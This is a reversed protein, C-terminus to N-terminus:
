RLAPLEFMFRTGENVHSQVHIVQQHAELIKKTIALGLGAGNRNPQTRSRVSFFREFIHPLDKEAIGVGTDEVTVALKGDRRALAITIRGGSPTHNLANEVLNQLAREIMGIDAVALPLSKPIDAAIKVGSREALQGFKMTVDNVLEPLSFPEPKPQSQKAELKSLEFLEQVLKGLRETSNFTTKLFRQREEDTLSSEKMMLTELYGQIAALPTRLDHSVNAILERRLADANNLQEVNKQITSAMENFAAGLDDLEDNSTVVVRQSYDGEKFAMVSNRMRRLKRTVFALAVLGVIGAALLSLLFGRLGLSLINSGRLREAISDFQEGGLIVYIYGYTMGNMTVPAASFIKPKLIDRPNDGLVLKKEGAALFERIPALSVETLKVKEKPAEFTLIKGTSDLLYVEASPNVVMVSHFIKNMEAINPKGDIFPQIDEVIHQAVSANLRQSTELFYMETSFFTLWVYAAGVLSLALLFVASLKWYLSKFFRKPM